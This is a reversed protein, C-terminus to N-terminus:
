YHPWNQVRESKKQEPSVKQVKDLMQINHEPYIVLKEMISKFNSNMDEYQIM